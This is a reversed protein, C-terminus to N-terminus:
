VGILFLCVVIYCISGFLYGEKLSRSETTWLSHLNAWLSSPILHDPEARLSLPAMQLLVSGEFGELTREGPRLPLVGPVQGTLMGQPSSRSGLSVTPPPVEGLPIGNPFM